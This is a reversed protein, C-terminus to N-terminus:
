QVTTSVEKSVKTSVEEGSLQTAEEVSHEGLSKLKEFEKGSFLAKYKRKNVEVQHQSGKHM